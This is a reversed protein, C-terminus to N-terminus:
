RRSWIQLPFETSQASIQYRDAIANLITQNWELDPDDIGPTLLIVYRPPSTQLTEVINQVIGTEPAQFWRYGPSWPAVPLTDTYYYLPSFSDPEPYILLSERPTLDTQEDIWVTIANPDSPTFVRVIWLTTVLSISIFCALILSVRRLGHTNKWTAAMLLSVFPFAALMHVDGFRPVNFIALTIATLAVLAMIRGPKLKLFMLPLLWGILLIVVEPSIRGGSARYATANFTVVWYVVEDM